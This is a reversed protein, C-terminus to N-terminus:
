LLDSIVNGYTSVSIEKQSLIMLKMSSIERDALILSTGTTLDIHFSLVVSMLALNAWKACAHRWLWGQWCGIHVRYNDSNMKWIVATPGRKLNFWNTDLCVNELYYERLISGLSEESSSSSYWHLCHLFNQLVSFDPHM